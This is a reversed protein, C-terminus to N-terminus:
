AYYILKSLKKFTKQQSLFPPPRTCVISKLSPNKLATYNIHNTESKNSLLYFQAKFVFISATNLDQDNDIKLQDNDCCDTKLTKCCDAVAKFSVEALEGHCYHLNASTKLTSFLVLAVLAINLVLKLYM